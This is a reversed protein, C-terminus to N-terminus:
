PTPPSSSPLAANKLVMRKSPVLREPEKSTKLEYWVEDDSLIPDHRILNAVGLFRWGRFAKGRGIRVAEEYAAKDDRATLRIIREEYLWRGREKPVDTVKFVLKASYAYENMTTTSEPPLAPRGQVAHRPAARSRRERALPNM